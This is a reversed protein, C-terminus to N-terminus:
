PRDRAQDLPYDAYRWASASVWHYHGRWVAKIRSSPHNTTHYAYQGNATEILAAGMVHDYWNSVPMAEYRSVSSKLEVTTGQYDWPQRDGAIMRWHRDHGAAVQAILGIRRGKADVAVRNLDPDYLVWRGRIQLEVMAHGDDYGDFRGNTVVSVHRAPIGNRIAARYALDAVISCSVHIREGANIRQELIEPATTNDIWGQSQDAAIRGVLHDPNVTAGATPASALIAGIAIAAIVKARTM